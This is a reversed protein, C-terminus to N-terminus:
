MFKFIAHPKEPIADFVTPQLEHTSLFVSVFYCLIMWARLICTLHLSRPGSRKTFNFALAFDSLRCHNSYGSTTPMHKVTQNSSIRLYHVPM